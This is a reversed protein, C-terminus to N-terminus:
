HRRNIPVVEMGYIELTNYDINPDFHFICDDPSDVLYVWHVVRSTPKGKPNSTVQFMYQHQKASNENDSVARVFYAYDGGKHIEATLAIGASSVGKIFKYDPQDNIVNSVHTSDGNMVGAQGNHM